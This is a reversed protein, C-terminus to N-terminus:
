SPWEHGLLQTELAQVFWQVSAETSPSISIEFGRDALWQESVKWAPMTGDSLWEIIKDPRYFVKNGRGQLPPEFPPGYDRMRWNALSQISIGTLRSLEMSSIPRWPPLPHHLLVDISLKSFDVAM